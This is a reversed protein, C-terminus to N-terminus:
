SKTFIIVTIIQKFRKNLEMLEVENGNYVSLTTSTFLTLHAARLNLRRLYKAGIYLIFRCLTIFISKNNGM